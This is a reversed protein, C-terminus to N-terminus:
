RCIGVYCWIAKNFKETIIVAYTLVLISAAMTM